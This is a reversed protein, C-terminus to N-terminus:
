LRRALWRIQAQRVFARVLKREAPKEGHRAAHRQQEGVTPVGVPEVLAGDMASERIDSEILSQLAADFESLDVEAAVVEVALRQPDRLAEVLGQDSVPHVLRFLVSRM